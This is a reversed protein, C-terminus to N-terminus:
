IAKYECYTVYQAIIKVETVKFIHNYANCLWEASGYCQKPTPNDRDIKEYLKQAIEIGEADSPIIRKGISQTHLTNPYSNRGKKTFLCYALADDIAAYASSHYAETNLKAIHREFANSPNSDPYSPFAHYTYVPTAKHKKRISRRVNM